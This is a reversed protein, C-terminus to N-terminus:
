RKVRDSVNCLTEFTCKPSNLLLFGAFAIFGLWVMLACAVAEVSRLFWSRKVLHPEGM